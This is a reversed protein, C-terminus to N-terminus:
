EDKFSVTKVTITANADIKSVDIILGNLKAQSEVNKQMATIDVVIDAEGEPDSGDANMGSSLYWIQENRGNLKDLTVDNRKALKERLEQIRSYIKITGMLRCACENISKDTHNDSAYTSAKYAATANGNNKIVEQSFSEENATLKNM